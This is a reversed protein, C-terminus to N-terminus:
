KKVLQKTWLRARELEGKALPGSKGEVIFGMSPVLLRGGRNVLATEIKPAAYGITRVLLRLVFNLNKELFRTDFAAVGIGKLSGPALQDLFLQLTQKPRGGQTPSGVILLDVGKLDKFVVEDANILRTKHLSAATDAIVEAIKKTNGFLSDYLIIIKM